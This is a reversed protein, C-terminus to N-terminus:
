ALDAPEAVARVAGITGAGVTSTPWNQTARVGNRVAAHELVEASPQPLLWGPCVHFPCPKAPDGYHNGDPREERGVREDEVVM